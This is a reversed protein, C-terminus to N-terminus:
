RLGLHDNVPDILDVEHLGLYRETTASTSHGYLRQLELIDKRVAYGLRGFTRRLDHPAVRKGLTQQAYRTVIRWITNERVGTGMVSGFRSVGRIVRGRTIRAAEVWDEWAEVTPAPLPITRVRLGKGRLNALVWRDEREQLASVDLRAVEARRLGATLILMLVLYDRKGVLTRTNPAALLRKAREKTLWNGVRVGRNPLTPVDEVIQRAVDADLVNSSAGEKAIRRLATLHLNISKPALKKSQILFQRYALVTSKSFTLRRHAQGWAVFARLAERYARQSHPSACSMVVNACVARWSASLIVM